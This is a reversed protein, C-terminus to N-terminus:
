ENLREIVLDRDGGMMKDYLNSKARTNLIKILQIGIFEEKSLHSFVGKPSYDYDQNIYKLYYENGYKERAEKLADQVESFSSLINRNEYEEIEKKNLM